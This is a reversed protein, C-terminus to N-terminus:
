SKIVEDKTVWSIESCEIYIESDDFFIFNHTWNRGKRLIEGYLYDGFEIYKGLNSLNLKYNTVNKHILLGEFGDGKLKIAVNIFTKKGKRTSTYEKELTIQELIADHFKGKQFIDVLQDPLGRKIRNFEEWYKDMQLYWEHKFKEKEELSKAQNLHYILDLTFYKM